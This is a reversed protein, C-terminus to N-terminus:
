TLYRSLLSKILQIFSTLVSRQNKGFVLVIITHISRLVFPIPYPIDSQTVSDISGQQNKEFRRQVLEVVM